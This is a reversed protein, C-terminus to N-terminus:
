RLLKDSEELEMDRTTYTIFYVFLEQKLPNLKFNTFQKVKTMMLAVKMRVAWGAKRRM